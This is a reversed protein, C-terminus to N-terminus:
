PMRLFRERNAKRSAEYEAQKVFHDRIHGTLRALNWQDIPVMIEYHGDKSTWGSIIVTPEDCGYTEVDIRISGGVLHIRRPEKM